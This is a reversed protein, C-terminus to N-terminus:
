FVAINGNPAHRCWCSPLSRSAAALAPNRRATAMTTAAAANGTAGNTNGAPNATTGATEETQTNEADPTM